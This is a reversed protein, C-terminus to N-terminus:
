STVQPGIDFAFTAPGAKVTVTTYSFPGKEKDFFDDSANDCSFIVDLYDSIFESKTKRTTLTYGSSTSATIAVNNNSCILGYIKYVGDVVLAPMFGTNIYQGDLFIFLEEATYDLPLEEVVKYNVDGTEPDIMGTAVYFRSQTPDFEPEWNTGIGQYILSRLVNPNFTNPFDKVYKVVQDITM